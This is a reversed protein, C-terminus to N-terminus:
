LIVSLDVAEEQRKINGKEEKNHNRKISKRVTRLIPNMILKKDELWNM